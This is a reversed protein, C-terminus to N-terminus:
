NGGASGFNVCGIRLACSRAEESTIEYEDFFQDDPDLGDPYLDFVTAPMGDTIRAGYSALRGFFIDGEPATPTYTAVCVTETDENVEVAGPNTSLYRLLVSYGIGTQIEQPCAVLPECGIAGNGLRVLEEGENCYLDEIISAVNDINPSVPAAACDWGGGEVAVIIQGEACTLDAIPVGDRISVSYSRENPMWSGRFEYFIVQLQTTDTPIQFSVSGSGQSQRGSDY